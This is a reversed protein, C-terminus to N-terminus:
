FRFQQILYSKTWSFIFCTRSEMHPFNGAIMRVPAQDSLLLQIMEGIANDDSAGFSPEDDDELQNAFIKGHKFCYFLDM